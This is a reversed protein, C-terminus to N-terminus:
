ETVRLNHRAASSRLLVVAPCGPGQEWSGDRVMDGAFGVSVPKRGRTALKAVDLVLYDLM